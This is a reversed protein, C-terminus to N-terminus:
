LNIFLGVMLDLPTYIISSFGSPCEGENRGFHLPSVTHFEMQFFFSDNKSNIVIFSFAAWMTESIPLTVCDTNCKREPHM